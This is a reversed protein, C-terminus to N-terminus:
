GPRPRARRRGRGSSGSHSVRLLLLQVRDVVLHPDARRRPDAGGSFLQPVIAMTVFFVGLVSGIWFLPNRKLSGWADSWLSNQKSGHGDPPSGLGVTGAVEVEAPDLSRQQQETM